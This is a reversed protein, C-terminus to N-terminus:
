GGSLAAVIHIESEPQLSVTLDPAPQKNVFIKIHPRIRNQEDVMRFKIGKYASDLNNVLQLLTDGSGEVSTKNATYSRLPSPIHVIM